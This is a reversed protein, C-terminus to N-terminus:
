EVGGLYYLLGAGFLGMVGMFLGPYDMMLRVSGIVFASVGTYQVLSIVANRHNFKRV